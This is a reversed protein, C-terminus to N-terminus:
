LIIICKLVISTETLYIIRLFVIIDNIIEICYKNRNFINLEKSLPLIYKSKLVISTETLNFKERSRDNIERCKLVISTETLNRLIRLM